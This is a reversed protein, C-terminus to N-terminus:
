HRDSVLSGEPQPAGPSAFSPPAAPCRPPYGSSLPHAAVPFSLLLDPVARWHIINQRGAARSGRLGASYEDRATAGSTMKHWREGDRIGKPTLRRTNLRNEDTGHASDLGPDERSAFVPEM